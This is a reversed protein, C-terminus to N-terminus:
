NSASMRLLEPPNVSAEWQAAKLEIGPSKIHPEHYAFHCQLPKELIRQNERTLRWEVMAEYEDIVAGQPTHYGQDRLV